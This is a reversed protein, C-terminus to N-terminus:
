VDNDEKKWTSGDPKIQMTGRSREKAKNTYDRNSKTREPKPKNKHHKCGNDVNLRGCWCFLFKGCDSRFM